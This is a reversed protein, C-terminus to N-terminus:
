KGHYNKGKEIKYFDHNLKLPTLYKDPNEVFKGVCNKSYFYHEIKNSMIILNSDVPIKSGCILCTDM